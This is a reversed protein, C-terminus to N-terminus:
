ETEDRPAEQSAEVLRALSAAARGSDLSDAAMEVGERVSAAREGAHLAVAANLVVIDRRPGIAGGLISRIIAANDATDGGLVSEVPASPIGADEPKIRTRAIWGNSDPGTFLTTPASISVEDLGDDSHVTILSRAGLALLIGSMMEALSLSFAGVVYRRVGAPNCLPGLINFCTRVGLARRVPMVHRMAPHFRPAYLFTLGVQELCYEAGRPGLNTEVGLEELVEAAGCRSSVSRNGHKAVVAGAGACVIAAATSVNFTKAGDGGTGVIDIADEDPLAVPLAHARMVETFGTLEELSEGRSRLGLLLGATEEPGANGDLLLRMARAAEERTLPEHEAIKKLISHM